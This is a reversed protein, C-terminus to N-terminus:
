VQEGKLGKIVMEKARANLEAEEAKQIHIAMQKMFETLAVEGESTFHSYDSSVSSYYFYKRDRMLECVGGFMLHKVANKDMNFKKVKQLVESDFHGQSGYPGYTKVIKVGLLRM